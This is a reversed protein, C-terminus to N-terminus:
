FLWRWDKAESNVDVLHPGKAGRPNAAEVSSHVAGVEGRVLRAERSAGSTGATPSERGEPSNEDRKVLRQVLMSRGGVGGHRHSSLDSKSGRGNVRPKSQDLGSLRRRLQVPEAGRNNSIESSM